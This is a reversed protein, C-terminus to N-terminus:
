VTESLLIMLESCNLGASMLIMECCVCLVDSVGSVQSSSFGRPNCVGLASSDTIEGM